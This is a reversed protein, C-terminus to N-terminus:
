PWGKPNGYHEATDDKTIDVRENDGIFQTEIIGTVETRIGATEKEEPQYAGPASEERNDKRAGGM